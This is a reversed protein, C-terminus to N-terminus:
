HQGPFPKSGPFPREPALCSPPPPADAQMAPYPGATGQCAPMAADCNGENAANPKCGHAANYSSGYNIRNGNVTTNTPKPADETRATTRKVICAIACGAAVAVALIVAVAVIAIVVLIAIGRPQKAKSQFWGAAGSRSTSYGSTGTCCFM